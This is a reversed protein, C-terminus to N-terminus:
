DKPARLARIAIHRADGEWFCFAVKRGSADIDVAYLEPYDTVRSLQEGDFVFLPNDGREYPEGVMVEFIAMGSSRWKEELPQWGRTKPLEALVKVRNGAHLILCAKSPGSLLFLTMDGFPIGGQLSWGSGDALRVLTTASASQFDVLLVDEDYGAYRKQLIVGREEVLVPHNLFAGELVEGPLDRLIARTRQLAQQQEPSLSPHMEEDEGSHTSGTLAGTRTDFTLHSSDVDGDSLSARVHDADSWGLAYVFTKYTAYKRAAAADLLTTRLRTTLDLVLIETNEIDPESIV